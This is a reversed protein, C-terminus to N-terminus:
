EGGGSSEQKSCTVTLIVQSNESWGVMISDWQDAVLHKTEPKVEKRVQDLDQDIRSLNPTPKISQYSRAMVQAALHLDAVVSCSLFAPGYLLLCGDLCSAHALMSTSMINDGLSWTVGLGSSGYPSISSYDTYSVVYSLTGQYERKWTQCKRFSMEEQFALSDM